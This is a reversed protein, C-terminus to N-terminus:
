KPAIGQAMRLHRQLTPLTDAAFTVVRTRVADPLPGDWVPEESM